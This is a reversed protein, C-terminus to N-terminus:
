HVEDEESFSPWSYYGDKFLPLDEAIVGQEAWQAIRIAAEGETESWGKKQPTRGLKGSLWCSHGTKATRRGRRMAACRACPCKPYGCIPCLLDERLPGLAQALSDKFRAEIDQPDEFLPGPQLVVDDPMYVDLDMRSKTGRGKRKNSAELVAELKAGLDAACGRRVCNSAYGELEEQTTVLGLHSAVTRCVASHQGNTMPKAFDFDGSARLFPFLFDAPGRREAEADEVWRRLLWDSLVDAALLRSKLKSSVARRVSMGGITKTIVMDLAAVHGYGDAASPWTLDGWRAAALNGHRISRASQVRLLLGAFVDTMPLRGETHDRIVLDLCYREVMTETIFGRRKAAAEAQTEARRWQQFLKDLANSTRCGAAAWTPLQGAQFVTERLAKKLLVLRNEVTKAKLVYPGDVPGGGFRLKVLFARLAGEENSVDGCPTPSVKQGQGTLLLEETFSAYEALLQMEKSELRPPAARAAVLYEKMAGRGVAAESNRVPLPRRRGGTPLRTKPPPRPAEEDNEEQELCADGEAVDIQWGGLDDEEVWAGANDSKNEEASLDEDVMHGGPM